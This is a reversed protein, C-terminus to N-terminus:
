LNLNGTGMCGFCIGNMYYNYESLVGSGLYKSCNEAYTQFDGKENYVPTKNKAHEEKHCSACLTILAENDYQWAMKGITYHKHHVNLDYMDKIQTSKHFCVYRYKGSVEPNESELWQAAFNLDELDPLSVESGIFDCSIVFGKKVTMLTKNSLGKVKQFFFEKEKIQTYNNIEFKRSLGLLKNRVVGCATCSSNDRKIIQERKIKWNETQLQENYNM